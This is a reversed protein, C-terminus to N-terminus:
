ASLRSKVSATNELFIEPGPWTVFPQRMTTASPSHHQSGQKHNEPSIIKSTLLLSLREFFLGDRM